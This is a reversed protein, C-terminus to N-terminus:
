KVLEGVPAARPLHLAASNEVASSLASLASCNCWSNTLTRWIVGFPLGDVLLVKFESILPQKGVHDGVTTDRSSKRTHEIQGIRVLENNPRLLYPYERLVTRVHHSYIGVTAFVEIILPFGIGSIRDTM